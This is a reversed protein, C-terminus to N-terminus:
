DLPKEMRWRTARYGAQQYVALAEPNCISADLAAKPAGRSRFWQEATDMLMRGYGGGRLEPAVYVNKIYGVFRDVMSTVLSGWLCGRVAKDVELVWIQEARSSVAARLQRAFDALFAEDVRFGPFNREYTERQFELVARLDRRPNFKRIVVTM